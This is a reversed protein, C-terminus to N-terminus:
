KIEGEWDINKAGFMKLTRDYSNKLSNGNEDIIKFIRRRPPLVVEQWMGDHILIQLKQDKAESLRNELIEYRWYGTSDSCYGIDRKYKSSYVNIMGAYQQRECSLTFRNNNHFSFVTPKFGFYVKFVDQEIKLYKEIKKETDIEWFHSDFHLQLHHSLRQISLLQNLTIKEIANYFDSHLQIFYTAKIGLEHEIQAMKLAIPVSFEIDHRLLIEKSTGTEEGFFAFDYNAKAIELLRKYNSLTFDSFRYKKQIDNM